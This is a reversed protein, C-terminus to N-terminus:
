SRIKAFSDQNLAVNEERIVWLKKKGAAVLAFWNLAFKSRKLKLLSFIEATM